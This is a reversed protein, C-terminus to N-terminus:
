ASRVGRRGKLEHLHRDEPVKQPTRLQGQDVLALPEAAAGLLEAAEVGVVGV